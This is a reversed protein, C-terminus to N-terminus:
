RQKEKLGPIDLLFTKRWKKARKESLCLETSPKKKQPVLSRPQDSQAYLRLRHGMDCSTASLM